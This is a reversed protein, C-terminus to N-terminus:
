RAFRKRDHGFVRVDRRAVTGVDSISIKEGQNIMLTRCMHDDRDAAARLFLKSIIQTFIKRIPRGDMADTSREPEYGAIM